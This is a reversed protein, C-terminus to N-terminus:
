EKEDWFCFKWKGKHWIAPFPGWEKRDGVPSSCPLLMWLNSNSFVGKPGVPAYGIGLVSPSYYTQHGLEAITKQARAIIEEPTENKCLLYDPLKQPPLNAFNTSSVFAVFAKTYADSLEKSVQLAVGVMGNSVINEPFEIDHPYHPCMTGVDLQGVIGEDDEDWFLLEATKGWERLCLNLDAVIASKTKASLKTDVFVVDLANSNSGYYVINSQGTCYSAYFMMATSFAVQTFLKTNMNQTGKM